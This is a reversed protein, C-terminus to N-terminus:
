KVIRFSISFEKFLNRSNIEAGLWVLVMEANTIKIMAAATGRVTKTAWLCCSILCCAAPGNQAPLLIHIEAFSKFVVVPQEGAQPLPLTQQVLM